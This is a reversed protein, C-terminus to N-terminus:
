RATWSLQQLRPRLRPVPPRRLVRLGPELFEGGRLYPSCPSQGSRAETDEKGRHHRAQETDEASGARESHDPWKRRVSSVVRRGQRLRAGRHRRSASAGDLLEQELGVGDDEGVGHRRPGAVARTRIAADHVRAAAPQWSPHLHVRQRWRRLRETRDEVGAPPIGLGIARRSGHRAHAPVSRDPGNGGRLDGIATRSRRPASVGDAM